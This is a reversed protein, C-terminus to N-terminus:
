LELCCDNWRFILHLYDETGPVNKHVGWRFDSEGIWHNGSAGEPQGPQGAGDPTGPGTPNGGPGPGPGPGAGPGGMSPAPGPMLATALPWYQQMRYQNKPLMFALDSGCSNGMTKRALGWRHLQAILRAAMLSTDAPPSGQHTVSGTMPYLTGWSGACWFLAELPQQGAVGTTVAEATCAMLAAPNAFLATEPNVFFSLMDDSWTPILETVYLLDFSSLPNCGAVLGLMEGVPFSFYHTHRFDRDQFGVKDSDGSYGGLETDAGLPLNVGFTPSCGPMKVAEVIRVPFWAGMTIGPFPPNCMCFASTVAGDPLEGPGFAQGAVKIPFICDWCIDSMIREFVRASRCSTSPTSGPPPAVGPPTAQAFSQNSVSSLLIAVALSLLLKM